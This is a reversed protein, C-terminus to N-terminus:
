SMGQIKDLIIRVILYPTILILFGLVVGYDWIKKM